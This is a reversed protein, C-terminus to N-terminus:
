GPPAFHYFGLVVGCVAVVAFEFAGRLPWPAHRLEMFYLGILRMKFAALVILGSSLWSVWPSSGSAEELGLWWSGATAGILVLWALLLSRDLQKETAM